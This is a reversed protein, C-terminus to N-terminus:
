YRMMYMHIQARWCFEINKIEPNYKSLRNDIIYQEQIGFCVNLIQKTQMGYDGFPCIVFNGWGKALASEIADRIKQHDTM